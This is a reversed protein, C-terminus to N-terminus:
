SVIPERLTNTAALIAPQTKGILVLYKAALVVMREDPILTDM